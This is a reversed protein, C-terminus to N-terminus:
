STHVITQVCQPLKGRWLGDRSGASATRPLRIASSCASQHSGCEAISDGSLEMAAQAIDTRLDAHIRVTGPEDLVRHVCHEHRRREHDSKSGTGM